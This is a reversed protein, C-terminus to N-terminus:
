EDFNDPLSHLCNSNLYLERLNFMKLVVDPLAIFLNSSAELCSLRRCMDLTNPLSEMCNKSVDLRELYILNSIASHLTRLRNDNLSLVRLSHCQFLWRPLEDLRNYDLFLEELTTENAIIEDPVSNLNSHSYDLVSPKARKSLESSQKSCGCKSLFPMFCRKRGSM